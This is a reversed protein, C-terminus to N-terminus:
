PMRWGFVTTFLLFFRLILNTTDLKHGLSRLLYNRWVGKVFEFTDCWFLSPPYFSFFFLFLSLPGHVFMLFFFSRVFSIEAVGGRSVYISVGTDPDARQEARPGSIFRFSAANQTFQKFPINRQHLNDPPQPNLPPYSTNSTINSIHLSRCPYVFWCEPWVFM